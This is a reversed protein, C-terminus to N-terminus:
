RSKCRRRKITIDNLEYFYFDAWELEAQEIEKSFKKKFEEWTRSDNTIFLLYKLPIDMNEALIEYYDSRERLINFVKEKAEAETKSENGWSDIWMIRYKREKM